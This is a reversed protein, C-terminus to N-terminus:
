LQGRRKQAADPKRVGLANLAREKIQAACGTLLGLDVRLGFARNGGLELTSTSQRNPIVVKDLKATCRFHWEASRGLTKNTVLHVRGCM